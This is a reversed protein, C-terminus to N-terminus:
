SQVVYKSRWVRQVAKAGHLFSVGLLVGVYSGFESALKLFNYLYEEENVIIFPQYYFYFRGGGFDDQSPAYWRM